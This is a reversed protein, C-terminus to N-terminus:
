IHVDLFEQFTTTRKANEKLGVIMSVVSAFLEDRHRPLRLPPNRGEKRALL